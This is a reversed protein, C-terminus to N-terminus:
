FGGTYVITLIRSYSKFTLGHQVAYAICQMFEEMNDCETQMQNSM